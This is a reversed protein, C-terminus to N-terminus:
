ILLQRSIAGHRFRGRYKLDGLARRSSIMMQVPMTFSCPYPLPTIDFESSGDTVISHAAFLHMLGAGDGASVLWGRVARYEPNEAVFQEVNEHYHNGKPETGNAFKLPRFLILTM